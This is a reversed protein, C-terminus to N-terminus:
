ISLSYSLNISEMRRMKCIFSSQGLSNPFNSLLQQFSHTLGPQQIDTCHGISAQEKVKGQADWM